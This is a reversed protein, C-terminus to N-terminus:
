NKESSSSAQDSVFDKRMGMFSEMWRFMEDKNRFPIEEEMKLLRENRYIHYLGGFPGSAVVTVYDPGEGSYMWYPCMWEVVVEDLRHPRYWCGYEHKRVAWCGKPGLPQGSRKERRRLNAREGPSRKKEWASFIELENGRMKLLPLQVLCADALIKRLIFDPTM